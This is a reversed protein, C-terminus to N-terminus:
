LYELLLCGPTGPKGLDPAITGDGALWREMGM